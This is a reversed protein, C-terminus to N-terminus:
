YRTLPAFSAVVAKRENLLSSSLAEPCKTLKMVLLVHIIFRVVTSPSGYNRRSQLLFKVFIQKYINRARAHTCIQIFLPICAYMCIHIYTHFNICAYMYVCMYVCVCVDLCMYVYIFLRERVRERERERERERVCVCVCALMCAHMCVHM